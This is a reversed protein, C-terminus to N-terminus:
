VYLGRKTNKAQSVKRTPFATEAPYISDVAEARIAGSQFPAVKEPYGAITMEGSPHAKTTVVAGNVFTSKLGQSVNQPKVAARFHVRSSDIVGWMGKRCRKQALYVMAGSESFSPAM